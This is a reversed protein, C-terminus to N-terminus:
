LNVCDENYMKILGALEGDPEFIYVINKNEQSIKFYYLHEGKNLFANVRKIDKNNFYTQFRSSTIPGMDQIVSVDISVVSVRKKFNIIKAIELVGNTFTYDYEVRTRSALYYMMFSLLGLFVAYILKVLNGNMTALFFLAAIGFLVCFVMYFFYVMTQANGLSVVSMEYFHDQKRLAAYRHNNM